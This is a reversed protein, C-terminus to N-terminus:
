TIRESKIANGDDSNFLIIRKSNFKLNVNDNIQVVLNNSSRVKVRGVATDVTIIKRVGLYEVGYVKGQFGDYSAATIEINEPRVGLYNLDTNSAAHIEPIEVSCGNILVSKCGKPISSHIPLFNMAPSGIFDAVVMTRPKNYLTLPDDAQLIAGKDMVGIRDGMAMAENQDHTVYITTADINTHLKKLESCMLERFEADLAGLPEDMLFAKPRRIIARGLAVRQRDGGSLGSVKSRLINELHLLKAVERVRSKIESRAVRQTKLPYGINKEVNMHPYLAFLQFVFAIDRQSARLFTVDQSDLFINGSTPFELGAIMRLTTTKGCGSPGLLVFFEGDEITLNTNSVATFDGFKKNLNKTIIEAM